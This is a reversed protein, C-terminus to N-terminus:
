FITIDDLLDATNSTGFIKLIDGSGFNLEVHSGASAPNAVVSGYNAIIVSESMAGGGWLTSDLKITDVNDEFDRIVDVKWGAKFVFTDAGSGGILKDRGTGGRLTDDGNGGWIVDHGSGGRLIDDGDGGKLIDNKGNGHLIDAGDLGHLTDTGGKAKIINDAANGKITDNGSGSIFNEIVTGPMIVMNGTLGGVSSIAGGHLDVTQNATENSFDITDIGGNDVLTFAAQATIATDYYGGATSGQGYVTNGTRLAGTTGYLDQIAAIDAIMPTMVGTFTGFYDWNAGIFSNQSPSFYSMISAQWSDNLYHNDGGGSQSYTAVGSYDGAHDLGLAHGIEHMYTLFSYSDVTTGYDTLWSAPVNVVGDFSEGGPSWWASGGTPNSAANETFVIDATSLGTVQFNIGSVMTWAQLATQALFQGPANLAAINVTLTGGPSVPFHHREAGGNEWGTNTLYYAIQTTTYVPLVM